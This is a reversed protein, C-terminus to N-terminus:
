VFKENFLRYIKFTINTINTNEETNRYEEISSFISSNLKYLQQQREYERINILRYLIGEIGRSIYLISFLLKEYQIGEPIKFYKITSYLQNVLMKEFHSVSEMKGLLYDMRVLGTIDVMKRFIYISIDDDNIETSIKSFEKCFIGVVEPLKDYVQRQLPLTILSHLIDIFIHPSDSIMCNGCHDLDMMKYLIDSPSTHKSIIWGSEWDIRMKGFITRVFTNFKVDQGYTKFDDALSVLFLRYDAIPDYRDLYFGSDVHAFTNCFPKNSINETYAFGFDIIVPLYGFTPVQVIEDYGNTLISYEIYKCRECPLVIINNAHLDYHVFNVKNQAIRISLLIQKIISYIVKKRTKRETILTRLNKGKIYELLLVDYKFPSSDDFLNKTLMDNNIGLSILGYSRSFNPYEEAIPNIDQFITNEHITTYDSHPSYKFIIPHPIDKLKILGVVAQKGQKKFSYLYEFHDSFKIPSPQSLIIDIKEKIIKYVNNREQLKNSFEM